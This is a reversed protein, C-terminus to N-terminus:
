LRLIHSSGALAMLGVVVLHRLLGPVARTGGTSAWDKKCTVGPEEGSAYAWAGQLDFWLGAMVGKLLCPIKTPEVNFDGALVCPQGRSIVALEGLAAEFLQDTLSLKEADEEAGQYGYVVVLHM